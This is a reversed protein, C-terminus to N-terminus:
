KKQSTWGQPVKWDHCTNCFMNSTGHVSHCNSCDLQGQHSNHPNVGAVGGWDQTSATVKAMDHCGSSACFAQDANVGVTALNGAEDTEFDGSVWSIGETIQENITAEHCELCSVNASKHTAALLTSDHYYGEVYNDMPDHCIANCFSPQAHWASFGLGAVVLVAVVIGVAIPWKKRKKAPHEVARDSKHDSAQKEQDVM